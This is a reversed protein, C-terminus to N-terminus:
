EREREVDREDEGEFLSRMPDTLTSRRCSGSAAPSAAGALLLLATFLGGLSAHISLKM